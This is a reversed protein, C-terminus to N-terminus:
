FESDDSDQGSLEFFSDPMDMDGAEEELTSEKYGYEGLDDDDRIQNDGPSSEIM